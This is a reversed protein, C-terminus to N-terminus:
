TLIRIKKIRNRDISEVIFKINEYEIEEGLEPLRDI